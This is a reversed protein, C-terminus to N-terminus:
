VTLKLRDQIYQKSVEASQKATGAPDPVSDLEVIVWGRYKHRKLSAFVAPFDVRGRGLEVWQYGKADDKARVDKAHLFLIRDHYKEIAKVPDGGGQRYHGVDLLLKLYRPDAVAMIVDTQEPKESLSNMHNHMAVKVGLDASKRGIESMLDAVRKRDDDTAERGAPNAAILQLYLGGADRLFKANGLHLALQAERQAPDSVVNGSSLAVFTLKAKALEAVLAAPQYMPVANARLQIGRYGVSSIDRISDEVNNGWTIAAYGFHLGGPAAAFLASPRLASVAAVGAAGALFKRRSVREVKSVNDVSHEHFNSNMAGENM